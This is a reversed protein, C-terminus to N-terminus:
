PDEVLDRLAPVGARALYQEAAVGAPGLEGVAEPVQVGLADGRGGEASGAAHREQVVRDVPRGVGAVSRCPEADADFQVGEPVGRHMQDDSGLVVPLGVEGGGGCRPRVLGAAGAEFAEGCELVVQASVADGTGAV